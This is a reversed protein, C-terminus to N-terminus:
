AWCGKSLGHSAPEDIVRDKSTRARCTECDSSAIKGHIAKDCEKAARIASPSMNVIPQWARGGANPALSPRYM